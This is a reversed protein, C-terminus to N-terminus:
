SKTLNVSNDLFKVIENNIRHPFINLFLPIFYTKSKLSKPILAEDVILSNTELETFSQVEKFVFSTNEGVTENRWKLYQWSEEVIFDENYIQCLDKWAETLYAREGYRVLLDVFSKLLSARGSFKEDLDEDTLEYIFELAEPLTYYTSFLGLKKSRFGNFELIYHAGRTLYQNNQEGRLLNIWYYFIYSLLSSELTLTLNENFNSIVKLTNSNVTHNGEILRSLNLSLLIEFALTKRYKGLEGDIPDMYVQDMGNKEIDKELYEGNKKIEEWILKLQDDFDKIKLDYKEILCLIYTYLISLAKILSIYNNSEIYPEILYYTYVLASACARKAVTLKIEEEKLPLISEIFLSFRAIDIYDNGQTNLYLDLFQKYETLQVPTFEQTANLFKNLLEGKVITELPTKKWKDKNLNEIQIRVTDELEGNTVFFYRKPKKPDISPHIVTLDLMEEIEAKIDKWKKHTINGGKLQFLSTIGSKDRAIIDKGQEHSNHKSIHIIEYGELILVQCFPIQYGLENTKTLWNEVTRELFSNKM